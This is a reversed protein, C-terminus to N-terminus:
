TSENGVNKYLVALRYIKFDINFSIAIIYRIDLITIDIFLMECSIKYTEQFRELCNLIEKM